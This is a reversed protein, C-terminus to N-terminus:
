RNFRNSKIFIIICWPWKIVQSFLVCLYYAGYWDLYGLLRGLIWGLTSKWITKLAAVAMHLLLQFLQGLGRLEIGNSVEPHRDVLNICGFPKPTSWSISGWNWKAWLWPCFPLSGCAPRWTHRIGKSHVSTTHKRGLGFMHFSADLQSIVDQICCLGSSKKPWLVEIQRQLDCPEQKDRQTDRRPRRLLLSKSIERHSRDQHLVLGGFLCLFQMFNCCLGGILFKPLLMGGRHRVWKM